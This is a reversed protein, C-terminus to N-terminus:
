SNNLSFYEVLHRLQPYDKHAMILIAHSNTRSIKPCKSSKQKMNDKM